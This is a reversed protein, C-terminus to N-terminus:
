TAMVGAAEITCILHKRKCDQVISDIKSGNAERYLEAAM